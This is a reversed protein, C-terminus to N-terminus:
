RLWRAFMKRANDLALGAVREPSEGRLRGAAEAVLPLLAPENPADEPWGDLHRPPLDPADTEFLLREPRVVPLVQAARRHMPDAISCGFSLSFGLDQMVRATEASGGFAHLLAGAEPLGEEGVLRGLSDWAKRCHVALPVGLARALRIQARLAAVQADRDCGELAFDLGCEGLGAGSDRLRDQLRREWGTRAEAVYWPHLGLMPVVSAHERAIDQVRDWDSERTGCVVMASVGAREARALVGPLDGALRPDQLHCHADVHAM